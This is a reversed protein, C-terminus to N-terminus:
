ISIKHDKSNRIVYFLLKKLLIIGTLLTAMIGILMSVAFGKLPGIGIYYLVSAVLFHTMNADLIITLVEKFAMTIADIFSYGLNIEERIKEFILVSSDIAMGLTLILGAIGSLTLTAKMIAMCILIFLLNYLLIIFAIFGATRYLIISFLLLLIMSILCAFLGAEITKNGLLPAIVREQAYVVPAAFSGSELMTVLEQAKQVTFKGQISAAGDPIPVSIVPATIVENDIIIALQKNLNNTTIQKFKKKGIANFEISVIPENGHQSNYSVHASKLLSGNILAHRNVAYWMTSNKETHGPIIMVTENLTRYSKQLDEKSTSQDLVIKMQLNATSGILKRVHEKEYINPIELIITQDQRAILIEGTGYPDLRKRLATINTKIAQDIMKEMTKSDFYLILVNGNEKKYQIDIKNSNIIEIIKTKQSEESFTIALTNQQLKISLNSAVETEIKKKIENLLEQYISEMQVNLVIYSGGVIDIGKNIFNNINYIFYVGLSTIVLMIWFFSNFINQTQLKM